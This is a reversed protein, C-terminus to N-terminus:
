KEVYDGKLSICKNWRHELAMIGDRYHNKTLDAFYGEVAAIAEQNSSFRQGALFLKLKPFLCFDSPALDPSYPPHELLEYHLDRLKGMALVSKHAPANDQHFIIKKKQLGPRKERIKEDLRTLLNSYYEGTITKGKELYDIFLIGEADWFVSAMVKGASPVSRTKKPASCGAETWQKSQQKSEPTYHHIWTEDMTIFRHVFDTKNKNFRELCQESIKMRTRKQDATLLRPVWRACLKKMDLEEHLIYGVREKSIGITEAIERVKMRRDDLVMDHVQEIIEPTTASKPRGERPDDELSTRGRKFEAAWKKITSFSPSSDGYVKIFKSHIENPTLGEKVFFKIVARYEIKDM